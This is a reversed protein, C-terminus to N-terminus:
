QGQWGNGQWKKAKVPPIAVPTQPVSPPTTQTSSDGSLHATVAHAETGTLTVTLAGMAVVAAAGISLAAAVVTRIFGADVKATM